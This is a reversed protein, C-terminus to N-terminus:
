AASSPRFWKVTSSGRNSGALASTARSTPNTRPYPTLEGGGYRLTHPLPVIRLMTSPALEPAASATEGV